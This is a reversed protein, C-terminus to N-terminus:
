LKNQKVMPLITQGIIFTLTAASIKRLDFSVYRAKFIEKINRQSIRMRRMGSKLV